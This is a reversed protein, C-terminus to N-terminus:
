KEIPNFTRDIADAVMEGLLNFVEIRVENSNPLTIGIRTKPNFPNPFNNSISYGAPLQEDKVDTIVFSFSGDTLTTTNYVTPNIYLNLTIGPLGIQNEDVIKGQVVQSSIKGCLFITAALILLSKKM